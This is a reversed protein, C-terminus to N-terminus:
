VREKRSDDVRWSAVIQGPCGSYGARAEECIGDRAPDTRYDSVINQAQERRGAGSPRSKKQATVDCSTEPRGQEAPIYKAKRTIHDAFRLTMEEQNQNKGSGNITSSTRSSISRFILLDLKMVSSAGKSM